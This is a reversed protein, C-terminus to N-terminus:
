RRMESENFLTPHNEELKNLVHLLITERMWRNKDTIKYKDLYRCVALYEKENFSVNMKFNRNQALEKEKTIIKKSM